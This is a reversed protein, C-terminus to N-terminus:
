CMPATDSGPPLATLTPCANSIVRRRQYSRQTVPGFALRGKPHPMRVMLETWDAQGRNIAQTDPYQEKQLVDSGRRWWILKYISWTDRSDASRGTACATGKPLHDVLGGINPTQM